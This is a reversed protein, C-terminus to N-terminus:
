PLEGPNKLPERTMPAKWAAFYALESDSLTHGERATAMCERVHDHIANSKRSLADLGLGGGIAQEYEAILRAITM